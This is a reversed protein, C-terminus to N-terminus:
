GEKIFRFVNQRSRIFYLGNQLYSIDIDMTKNESDMTIITEGLGNTIIVQGLPRDSSISLKNLVPNPFVSFAQETKENKLSTATFIITGNAFGGLPIGRQMYFGTEDGTLVWDATYTGNITTTGSARHIDVYIGYPGGASFRLTDGIACYETDCCMPTITNMSLYYLTAHAKNFFLIFLLPIFYKM